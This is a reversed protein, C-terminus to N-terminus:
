SVTKENNTEDNEAEELLSLPSHETGGGYLEIKVPRSEPVSLLLERILEILGWVVSLLGWEM